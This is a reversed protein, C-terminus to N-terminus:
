QTPTSTNDRVAAASFAPSYTFGSYLARMSITDGANVDGITTANDFVTGPITLWVPQISSLGYIPPFNTISFQPTGSTQVTASIRSFRLGLTQASAFAPTTGNKATFNTLFCMVEQGPSIVSVDTAGDFNSLTFTLGQADVFFPSPSAILGVNVTDGLALNNGIVSGTSATAYDTTVITFQQTTLNPTAVVIGEIVDFGPNQFPDYYTLTFTGDSNLITNIAVLESQQVCGSFSPTPCATADFVTSSNAVATISGRTSTQVTVSQTSANVSTVMGVIDDVHSLQNTGLDTVGPIKYVTVANANALNVGTVTQGSVTIANAINLNVALALTGNSVVTYNTTLSPTAPGGTIQAISNAACGQTGAVPQTCFTVVPSSLSIAIGTYSGAPVNLLSSGYFVSDSTARNFDVVMNSGNPTINITSGGASPTLSIENVIARFSLIALNSTPAPPTAVLTIAISGKGTGGGGGGGPLGSCASLSLSVLALLSLLSLSKRNM